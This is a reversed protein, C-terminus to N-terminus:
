KSASFTFTTPVGSDYRVNNLLWTFEIINVASFLSPKVGYILAPNKLNLEETFEGARIGAALFAEVFQRAEPLQRNILGYATLDLDPHKGIEFGCLPKKADFKGRFFEGTRMAMDEPLDQRCLATTIMMSVNESRSKTAHKGSDAFYFQEIKEPNSFFWQRMNKTMEAQKQKWVAKEESMGLEETILITYDVDLLWSIVFEIDKEDKALNSGYVWRPNKKRWLLYRKLAPYIARLRELDPKNKYLIWATQAKRSPLSEGGLVGEENVRTMLGMYAKWSTEPAIFSNWQFAFFSEWGCSAPCTKEGEDWLSAKGLSFQPFPYEPNEPFVDILNQYNFAWAAYYARRHQKASIKGFGDKVGWKKPAPVKRLYGDMVGKSGALLKGVPQSGASAVREAARESGELSSAFGIVVAFADSDSMVSLDLSWGKDDVKPPQNLPVPMLTAGNLRVFKIECEYEPHNVRLVGCSSDWQLAAQKPTVGGLHLIKGKAGDVALVRVVVDKADTFFDIGKIKAGGSFGADFTLKYPFWATSRATSFETAADTGSLGVTVLDMLRLAHVGVFAGLSLPLKEGLPRIDWRTDSSAYEKGPVPNISLRGGPFALWRWQNTEANKISDSDFGPDGSMVVQAQVTVPFVWCLLVMLGVLLCHRVNFDKKLQLTGTPESAALKKRDVETSAVPVVRNKFSHPKMM